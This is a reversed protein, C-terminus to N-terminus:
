RGFVRRNFFDVINSPTGSPNSQALYRQYQEEASPLWSAGLNGYKSRAARNAVRGLQVAQSPDLEAEPDIFPNTSPGGANRQRVMENWADSAMSTIGQGLGAGKSFLDQIFGYPSNSADQGTAGRIDYADFAPQTERGLYGRFPNGGGGLKARNLAGRFESEFAERGIPRDSSGGITLPFPGVQDGQYGSGDEALQQTEGLPTTYQGFPNHGLGYGPAMYGSESYGGPATLDSALGAASWQDAFSGGSGAQIEPLGEIRTSSGQGQPPPVTEGTQQFTITAAQAATPAYVQQQGRSTNVVWWMAM